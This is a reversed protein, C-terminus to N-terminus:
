LMKRLKTIISSVNIEQTDINGSAYLFIFKYFGSAMHGFDLDLGTGVTSTPDVPSLIIFHFLM